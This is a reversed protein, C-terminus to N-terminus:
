LKAEKFLKGYPTDYWDHKRWQGSYVYKQAFYQAEKSIPQGGNKFDRYAQAYLTITGLERLAKIREMADEIDQVLFYVFIKSSSIGRENLLRVANALPEIGSATDCAFRIFRIWRIRALIDAVYPTVLRSDLGQNFDLRYKQYNLARLGDIAWPLSLVNNDMLVVKDTDPRAIQDIRRYRRTYGEKEPVCCWECKRVCGRTMFGIAYDCDPYISYDPHSFEIGLPLEKKIDYGTGGKITDPPLYPNEPTFTFVKSSYVKDYQPNKIPQWWEVTDGLRKHYASIKILAYNPFKKGKHFEADADHLGILM